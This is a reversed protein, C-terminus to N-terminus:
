KKEFTLIKFHQFLIRKVKATDITTELNTTDLENKVNQLESITPHFFLQRGENQANYERVTKLWEEKNEDYEELWKTDQSNHMDRFIGFINYRGTYQTELVYFRNPKLPPILVINNNDNRNTVIINKANLSDLSYKFSPDNYYEKSDNKSIPYLKVSVIYNHKSPLSITDLFQTGFEVNKAKNQGLVSNTIFFSFVLLFINKM